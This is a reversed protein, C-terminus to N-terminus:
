ENCNRFPVELLSLFIPTRSTQGLCVHLGMNLTHSSNGEVLLAGINAHQDQIYQFQCLLGSAFSM